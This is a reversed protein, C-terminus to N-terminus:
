VNTINKELIFPEILVELQISFVFYVILFNIIITGGKKILVKYNRSVMECSNIQYVRYKPVIKSMRQSNNLM